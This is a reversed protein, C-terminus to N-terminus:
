QPRAYPDNRLMSGQMRWATAFPDAARARIRKTVRLGREGSEDHARQWGALEEATMRYLRCAEEESLMGAQVARVVQAKRRSNWRRTTVPPVTETALIGALERDVAIRRCPDPM